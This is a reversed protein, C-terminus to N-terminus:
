ARHVDLVDALLSIVDERRGNPVALIVLDGDAGLGAADLRELARAAGAIVIPGPQGRYRLEANHIAALGVTLDGAPDIAGTIADPRKAKAPM